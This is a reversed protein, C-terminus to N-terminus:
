RLCNYAQERKKQKCITKNKNKKRNFLGGGTQIGKVLSTNEVISKVEEFSKDSCISIVMNNPKYFTKYFNITQDYDYNEIIKQESGITKELSSGKFILAYIKENVLSETNDNSRIIEDVVVNKERDFEDKKMSATLLIESYIGLCKDLYDSHAKFYYCTHDFTTYANIGM